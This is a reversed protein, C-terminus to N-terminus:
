LTLYSILRSLLGLGITITVVIVLLMWPRFPRREVRHQALQLYEEVHRQDDPNLRSTM